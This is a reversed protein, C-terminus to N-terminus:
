RYKTLCSYAYVKGWLTYYTHIHLFVFFAHTQWAYSGLTPTPQGSALYRDYTGRIVGRHARELTLLQKMTFTQCRSITPHHNKQNFPSKATSDCQVIDRKMTDTVWSTTINSQWVKEHTTTTAELTLPVLKHTSEVKGKNQFDFHGTLFLCSTWRKRLKTRITCFCTTPVTKWHHSVDPCARTTCSTIITICRWQSISKGCTLVLTHCREWHLLHHISEPMFGAM